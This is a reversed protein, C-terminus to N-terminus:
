TSEEVEQVLAVIEQVWRHLTVHGADTNARSPEGLVGSESVGMIGEVQVQRMQASTVPADVAASMDVFTPDLALMVSTETTGAHPDGEHDMPFWAVVHSGEYRATAVARTVAALNGGHGNVLVVSAWTSRASRLVELVVQELVDNGISLLGAFGAHEGSAGIPIAPAVDCPLQEAVRRALETAIITDTTFPLHPGHQEFSGLPILLTRKGLAEQEVWTRFSLPRLNM